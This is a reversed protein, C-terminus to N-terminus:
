LIEEIKKGEPRPRWGKINCVAYYAVYRGNKQTCAGMLHSPFGSVSTYSLCTGCTEVM